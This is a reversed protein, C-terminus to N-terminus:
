PRRNRKVSSSAAWIARRRCTGCSSRSYRRHPPALPTRFIAFASPKIASRTHTQNSRQIGETQKLCQADFFTTPHPNLYYAHTMNPSTSLLADLADLSETRDPQQYQAHNYVTTIRMKGGAFVDQVLNAIRCYRPLVGCIKDGSSRAGVLGVIGPEFTHVNNNCNDTLSLYRTEYRHEFFHAV